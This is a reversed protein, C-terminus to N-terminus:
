EVGISFMAELDHRSHVRLALMTESDLIGEVKLMSGTVIDALTENDRTRILAILDNRGSVSYVETIDPM